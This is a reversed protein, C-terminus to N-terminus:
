RLRYTACAAQELAAKRRSIHELEECAMASACPADSVLISNMCIIGPKM